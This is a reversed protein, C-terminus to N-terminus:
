LVLEEFGLVRNGGSGGTYSCKLLRRIVTYGFIILLSLLSLKGKEHMVSKRQEGVHIKYCLLFIFHRM